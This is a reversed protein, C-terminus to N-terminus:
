ALLAGPQMRALRLAEATNVNLFWRGVPLGAPHAAHGAQAIWEAPLISLPKGATEAAARWAAFCGLDGAQLRMQLVALATRAVVAPFTQAYGASAALTVARGTVQAHHLMYALLSAPLLPADVPLFVAWETHMSELAACIGGLPGHGPEADQVVPAFAALEQARAGAIAVREVGAERLTALAQEVLTRQGWPLLAKDQGMRSSAGGALVFGTADQRM